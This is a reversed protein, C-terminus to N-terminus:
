FKGLGNLSAKHVRLKLVRSDNKHPIRMRGIRRNVLVLWHPQRDTDSTTRRYDKVQCVHVNVEAGSLFNCNSLLGVTVNPM